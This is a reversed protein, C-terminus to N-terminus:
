QHLSWLTGALMAFVESKSPEEFLSINWLLLNTTINAYESHLVCPVGLKGACVWM